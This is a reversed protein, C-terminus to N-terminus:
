EPVENSWVPSPETAAGRQGAVVRAGASLFGEIVICILIMCICLRLCLLPLFLSM